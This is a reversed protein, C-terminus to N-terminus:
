LNTSCSFIVDKKGRTAAIWREHIPAALSFAESPCLAVCVACRNCKDADFTLEPALVIAQQPCCQSCLECQSDKYRERLCKMRDFGIAEDSFMRNLLSLGIM